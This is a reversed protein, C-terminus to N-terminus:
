WHGPQEGHLTVMGPDVVLHDVSLRAAVTPATLGGVSQGIVVLDKRAGVAQVVVDAYDGLDASEDDAPLDPAVGDHGRARLEAEVLHWYWGVDGGGHILVFTSM